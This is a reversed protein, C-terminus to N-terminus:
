TNIRMIRELKECKLIKEPYFFSEKVVKTLPTHPRVRDQKHLIQPKHNKHGVSCISDQILYAWYLPDLNIDYGGHM